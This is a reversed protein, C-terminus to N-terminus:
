VKIKLNRIARLNAEFCSTGSDHKINVKLVGGESSQKTMETLKRTTESLKLVPQSANYCFVTSKNIPCGLPIGLDALIIKVMDSQKKNCLDVTKNLVTLPGQKGTIEIQLM